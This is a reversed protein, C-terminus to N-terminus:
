LGHRPEPSTLNGEHGTPPITAAQGDNEHCYCEQEGVAGSRAGLRWGRALRWWGRAGRRVHSDGVPYREGARDRESEPSRPPVEILWMGPRRLLRAHHLLAGIWDGPDDGECRSVLSHESSIYIAGQQGQSSQGACWVKTLEAGLGRAISCASRGHLAGDLKVITLAWAGASV